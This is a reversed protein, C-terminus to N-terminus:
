NMKSNIEFIDEVLQGNEFQMEYKYCKAYDTMSGLVSRNLTKGIEVEDYSDKIKKIVSKKVGLYNLNLALNKNFLDKINELDSKKIGPIIFAFLTKENVFLLCKKRNILIINAYWSVLSDDLQLSGYIRSKPIAIEKLLKATCRLILM